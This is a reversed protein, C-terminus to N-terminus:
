FTYINEERALLQVPILTYLHPVERAHIHVPILIYLHPVERWPGHPAGPSGRLRAAPPGPLQQAPGYHLGLAATGLASQSMLNKYIHIVQNPHQVWEKFLRVFKGCKQQLYQVLPPHPIMKKLKERVHQLIVYVLNISEFNSFTFHTFLLWGKCIGILVYFM